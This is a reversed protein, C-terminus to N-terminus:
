LLFCSVAVPYGGILGLVLLSESGKPIKCLAALPHLLPLHKGWLFNNVIGSLIFFPFLAPIVTQLCLRIGERSGQIATKTDLIIMLMALAALIGTIIKRQGKM